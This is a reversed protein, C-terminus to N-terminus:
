RKGDFTFLDPKFDQIKEGNTKGEIVWAGITPNLGLRKEFYGADKFCPVQLFDIGRYHMYFSTHYHGYALVNPLNDPSRNNIDRQAKYSLAYAVSGMPHLMEMTVQDALRVDANYQGIYTIDRRARAIAVLPDAGGKEYAKLDHNGSIGVTQIGERKPYKEITYDIQSQQGYQNVELEQGRYVGVGDTWDGVHFVVKVGAKKFRDYAMELADLREKKSGLHTDSLIGFHLLGDAFLKRADFSSPSSNKTRVFIGGTDIFRYGEGILTDLVAKIEESGKGTERAVSEPTFEGKAKLITKRIDIEKTM